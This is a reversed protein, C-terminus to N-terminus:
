PNKRAGKVGAMHIVGRLPTKLRSGQAKRGRKAEIKWAKALAEAPTSPRPKVKETM